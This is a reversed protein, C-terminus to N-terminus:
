YFSKKNDKMKRLNKAAIRLARIDLTKHKTMVCKELSIM